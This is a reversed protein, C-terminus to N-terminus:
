LDLIQTQYIKRFFDQILNLSPIKVELAASNLLVHISQTVDAAHKNNHYPVDAHYHDELTMLFAIFVHDSIQFTQFLNREQFYKLTKYYLQLFSIRRFIIANLTLLKNVQFIKYTMTTLPRNNTLSALTFIDVGWHDISNLMQFSNMFQLSWKFLIM